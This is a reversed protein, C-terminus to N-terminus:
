APDWQVLWCFHVRYLACFVSFVCPVYGFPISSDGIGEVCGKCRDFDKLVPVVLLIRITILDVLSECLVCVCYIVKKTLEGLRGADGLLLGYAM